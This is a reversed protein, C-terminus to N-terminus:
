SIAITKRTAKRFLFLVFGTLAYGVLIDGWWIFWSHILGFVLLVLLRRPYFKVPKGREEARSMQIAFGLGFLFAFLTIFKGQIFFDIFGQAIKDATGSFMEEINFYVQAPDSFGRMNAAIIGFLALGRLIDLLGIREGAAVPTMPDPTVPSTSM